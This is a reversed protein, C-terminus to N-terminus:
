RTQERSKKWLPLDVVLWVKDLTNGMNEWTRGTFNWCFDPSVTAPVLLHTASCIGHRVHGSPNWCRSRMHRSTFKVLYIPITNYIYIWMWMYIYIHKCAYVRIYLDKSFIYKCMCVCVCIYIHIYMCIHTYTHIHTFIHKLPYSCTRSM